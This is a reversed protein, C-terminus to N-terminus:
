SLNNLEKLESYKFGEQKRMWNALNRIHQGIFCKTIDATEIIIDNETKVYVTMKTTSFWWHRTKSM